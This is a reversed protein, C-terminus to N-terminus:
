QGQRRRRRRKDQVATIVEVATKDAEKVNEDDFDDEDGKDNRLCRDEAERESNPELVRDEQIEPM